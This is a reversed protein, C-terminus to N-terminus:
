IYSGATFDASPCLDELALCSVWNLEFDCLARAVRNLRPAAETFQM